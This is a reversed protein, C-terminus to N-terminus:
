ESGRRNSGEEDASCFPLALNLRRNAIRNLFESYRIRFLALVTKTM